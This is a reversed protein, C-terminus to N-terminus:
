PSETIRVNKTGSAAILYISATDDAAWIVYQDKYIPTGTSTTVANTYGWYITGDPLATVLKRNTLRSGGVRLEVATTSVSLAGHTGGSHLSDSSRIDQTNSVAAFTSEAGGTSSGVLKVSQAAQVETLDAM